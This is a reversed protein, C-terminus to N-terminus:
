NLTNEDSLPSFKPRFGHRTVFLNQSITFRSAMLKVYSHRGLSNDVLFPPPREHLQNLTLNENSKSHGATGQHHVTTKWLFLVLWKFLVWIGILVSNFYFSVMEYRSILKLTQYRDHHNFQSINNKDKMKFVGNESKVSM